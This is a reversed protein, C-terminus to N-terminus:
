HSPSVTCLFCLMSDLLMVASSVFAIFFFYPLVLPYLLLLWVKGAFPWVTVVKAKSAVHDKHCSSLEAFAASSIPLHAPVAVNWYFKILLCHIESKM